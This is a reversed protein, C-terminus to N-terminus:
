ASPQIAVVKVDFHKCAADSCIGNLWAEGSGFMVGRANVMLDAYRQGAIVTAIAPTVIERYRAAFSVADDIVVRKGDITATFPYDVLAAVAVADHAAM